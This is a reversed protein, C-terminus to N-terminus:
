NEKLKGKHKAKDDHYEDMCKKSCFNGCTCCLVYRGYIWDGCNLCNTM